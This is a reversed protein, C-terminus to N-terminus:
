PNHNLPGNLFGQGQGAMNSRATQDHSALGQGGRNVIDAVYQLRNILKDLVQGQNGMTGRFEDGAHGKWKQMVFDLGAKLTAAQNVMNDAKTNTQLATHQMLATDVNVHGAM